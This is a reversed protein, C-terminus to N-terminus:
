YRGEAFHPILWQIKLSQNRTELFVTLTRNHSVSQSHACLIDWMMLHPFTCIAILTVHREIAWVLYYLCM